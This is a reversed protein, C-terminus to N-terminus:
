NSFVPKLSYFFGKDMTHHVIQQVQRSTGFVKLLCVHYCVLMEGTQGVNTISKTNVREEGMFGAINIM